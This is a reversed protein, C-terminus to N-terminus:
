IKNTNNQHFMLHVINQMLRHVWIVQGHMMDCWLQQRCHAYFGHWEDHDCMGKWEYLFRALIYVLYTMGSISKRSMMVGKYMSWEIERPFEIIPTNYPGSRKRDLSEVNVHAILTGEQISNRKGMCIIKPWSLNM